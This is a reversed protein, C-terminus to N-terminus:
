YFTCPIFFRIKESSCHNTVTFLSAQRMFLVHIKGIWNSSFEDFVIAWLFLIPRIESPPFFREYRIHLSKHGHFTVCIYARIYITPLGFTVQPPARACRLTRATYTCVGAVLSPTVKVVTNTFAYAQTRTRPLCLRRPPASRPLPATTTTPSRPALGTTGRGGDFHTYADEVPERDREM